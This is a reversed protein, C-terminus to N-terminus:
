GAPDGGRELAAVDALRQDAQQVLAQNGIEEAAARADELHQRAQQRRAEGKETTAYKLAEDAKVILEFIEQETM